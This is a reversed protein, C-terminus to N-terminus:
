LKSILFFFWHTQLAASISIVASWCDIAKDERLWNTLQEAANLYLHSNSKSDSLPLTVLTSRNEFEMIKLQFRRLVWACCDMFLLPHLMGAVHGFTRIQAIGEYFSKNSNQLRLLFQTATNYLNQRGRGGGLVCMSYLVIGKSSVCGELFILSVNSSIKSFILCMHCLVLFNWFHPPNLLLLLLAFKQLFLPMSLEDLICDHQKQCQIVVVLRYTDELSFHGTQQAQYDNPAQTGGLCKLSEIAESGWETCSKVNRFRFHTKSADLNSVRAVNAFSCQCVPPWVRYCHCLGTSKSDSPNNCSMGCIERVLLLITKFNWLKKKFFIVRTTQFNIQFQESLKQDSIFLCFPTMPSWQCSLKVQVNQIPFTSARPNSSIVM